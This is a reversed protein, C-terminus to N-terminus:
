MIQTGARKERHDANQKQKHAVNGDDDARLSHRARVKGEMDLASISRRSRCWGLRVISDILRETCEEALGKMMLDVLIGWTQEKRLNTQHHM